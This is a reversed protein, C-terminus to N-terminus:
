REAALQRQMREAMMRNIRFVVGPLFRKLYYIFWAEPSVPAVARNRQVAKLINGAVREPGYNRRQYIEIMRRRAADTANPGRLRAAATIPTNIIGPCVATVGIGHPALEDRLAESLGFVGFKTTSYASLAATAAFAAASAVNVVHGGRRRAVMKPIFFHCGHIVGMLNIGVIWDWDDLGTDLFGGGLGVGANNMLIDLADVQQHVSDAFDRMADRNAVDVRRAMADRGLARIQRETEALGAENVDCVVLNAGRRAFALASEKGIGSGAGTVLVTKGTLDRVDM